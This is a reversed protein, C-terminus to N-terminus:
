AVNVWGGHEHSRAAAHVTREIELGADFGILHAPEGAIARLLEHCEIIKLENFGLAM